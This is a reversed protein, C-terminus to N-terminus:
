TWPPVPTSVMATIPVSNPSSKTTVSFPIQPAPNSSEYPTTSTKSASPASPFSPNKTNLVPTSTVVLRNPPRPFSSKLMAPSALFTSAALLKSGACGPVWVMSTMWPGNFISPKLPAPETPLSTSGTNSGPSVFWSAVSPLTRSYILLPPLRALPVIVTLVPSKNSIVVEILSNTPRVRSILLPTPRPLNQCITPTVTFPEVDSDSSGSFFGVREAGSHCAGFLKLSNLIVLRDALKKTSSVIVISVTVTNLSPLIVGSTPM